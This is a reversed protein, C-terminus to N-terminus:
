TVEVEALRLESGGTEVIELAAGELPTGRTCIDFGFRLAHASVGSERGVVLRVVHVREDTIGDTVTDVLDEMLALEHM